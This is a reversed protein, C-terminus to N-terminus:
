RRGDDGAVPHLEYREILERPPVLILEGRDPGSRDTDDVERVRERRGVIGDSQRAKDAEIARYERLDIFGPLRLEVDLIDEVFGVPRRRIAVVVDRGALPPRNAQCRDGLESGLAPTKYPAILSACQAM